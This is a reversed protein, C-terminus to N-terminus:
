YHVGNVNKVNNSGCASPDPIWGTSLPAPYPCATSDKHWQTHKCQTNSALVWAIEASLASNGAWLQCQAQM